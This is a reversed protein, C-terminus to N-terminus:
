RSVPHPTSESNAPNLPQVRQTGWELGLSWLTPCIDGKQHFLQLFSYDPKFFNRSNPQTKSGSTVSYGIDSLQLAVVSQAM